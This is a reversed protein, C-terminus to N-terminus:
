GDSDGGTTPTRPANQRCDAILEETEHFSDCRPCSSRIHPFPYAVPRSGRFEGIWWGDALRWRRGCKTRVHTKGVHVIREVAYARGDRDCVQVQDGIGVSGLPPPVVYTLSM